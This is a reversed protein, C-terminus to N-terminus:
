TPKKYPNPFVKEVAAQRKQQKQSTSLLRYQAPTLDATLWDDPVVAGARSGERVGSGSPVAVQAVSSAIPTVSQVAQSGSTLPGTASTQGAGQKTRNEAKRLRRLIVKFTNLKLDLGLAALEDRATVHSVGSAIAAEVVASVDRFRATLSRNDSKSIVAFRQRVAEIDM